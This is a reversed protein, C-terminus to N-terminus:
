FCCACEIVNMKQLNAALNPNTIPTNSLADLGANIVHGMVFNPDRELAQNITGIPDGKWGIIELCVKDYLDICDKSTTSHLVGNQDHHTAM